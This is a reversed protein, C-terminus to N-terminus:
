FSNTIFSSMILCNVLLYLSISDVFFIEFIRLFFNHYIGRAHCGFLIESLKMTGSEDGRDSKTLESMAPKVHLGGLLKEFEAEAEVTRGKQAFRFFLFFLYIVFSKNITIKVSKIMTPPCSLFVFFLYSTNSYFM